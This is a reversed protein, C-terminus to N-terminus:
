GGYLEHHVRLKITRRDGEPVGACLLDIVEAGLIQKIGVAAKAEDFGNPGWCEDRLWELAALEALTVRLNIEVVVKPANAPEVSVSPFQAGDAGEIGIAISGSGSQAPAPPEAEAVFGPAGVDRRAGQQWRFLSMSVGVWLLGTALMAFSGPRGRALSFLEPAANPVNVRAALNRTSLDGSVPGPGRGERLFSELILSTPSPGFAISWTGLGDFPFALGGTDPASTPTPSGNFEELLALGAPLEGPPIGV